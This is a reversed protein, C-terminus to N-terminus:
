GGSQIIIETYCPHPCISVLISVVGLRIMDRQIIGAETEGGSDAEVDEIQIEYSDALPLSTGDFTLYQTCAMGIKRRRVESEAETGDTGSEPHRAEWRGKWM